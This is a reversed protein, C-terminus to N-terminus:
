GFAYARYEEQALRHWHLLARFYEHRGERMARGLSGSARVSRKLKKNGAAIVQRASASVHMNLRMYTGYFAPNM